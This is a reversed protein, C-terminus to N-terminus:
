IQVLGAGIALAGGLMHPILGARRSWFYDTYSAPSYHTLYHLTGSVFWLLALALAALVVILLRRSSRSQLSAATVSM